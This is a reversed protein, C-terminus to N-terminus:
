LPAVREDSISIVSTSTVQGQERPNYSAMSIGGLTAADGLRSARFFNDILGKEPGGGSCALVGLVLTLLIPALLFGTAHRSRHMRQRRRPLRARTRTGPGM